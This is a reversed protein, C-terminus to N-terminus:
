KCCLPPQTDWSGDPQCASTPSGSVTYGVSCSFMAITTQGGTTFNISGNPPSSITECTVILSFFMLIIKSNSYNQLM